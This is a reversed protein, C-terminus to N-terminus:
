LWVREDDDEMNRDELSYPVFEVVPSAPVHRISMRRPLVRAPMKIEFDEKDEVATVFSDKSSPWSATSVTSVRWEQPATSIERRTIRRTLVAPRTQQQPRRREGIVIAVCYMFLFTSAVACYLALKWVPASALLLGFVANVMGLPIVLRGFWLHLHSFVTRRDKMVFWRHHLWGLPGQCLLMLMVLVGIIFHKDTVHSQFGHAILWIGLGFAALYGVLGGLQLGAHIWLLNKSKGIRILIGGLPFVIAFMVAAIIGHIAILYATTPDEASRFTTSGAGTTTLDDVSGGKADAGFAIHGYSGADHKVISAAPDDTNMPAGQYTAWIWNTSSATFDMSGGTWTSCNSCRIYAVMQNNVVGSGPLIEAQIASNYTPMINGTSSRPSLTLNTTNAATYILFFNANAMQSGQALAVWSYTTPATIRLYIDGIGSSATTTPISLSFCLNPDPCTTSIASTLQIICLLLASLLIHLM